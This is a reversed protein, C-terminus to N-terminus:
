SSSSSSSSTSSSSIPVGAGPSGPPLRWAPNGLVYSLMTISPSSSRGEDILKYLIDKIVPNIINKDKLIVSDNFDSVSLRSSGPTNSLVNLLTDCDYPSDKKNMIYFDLIWYFLFNIELERRISEVLGKFSIDTNNLEPYIGENDIVYEVEQFSFIFQTISINYIIIKKFLQLIQSIDKYPPTDNVEILFFSDDHSMIKFVFNKSKLLKISILDYSRQIFYICDEMSMEKNLPGKLKLSRSSTKVRRLISPLKEINM